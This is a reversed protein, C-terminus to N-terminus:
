TRGAEGAALHHRTLLLAAALRVRPSRSRQLALDALARVDQEERPRLVGRREQTRRLDFRALEIALAAALRRDVPDHTDLREATSLRRAVEHLSPAVHDSSAEDPDHAGATATEDEHRAFTTWLARLPADSRDVDAFWRYLAAARRSLQQVQTSVSESSM